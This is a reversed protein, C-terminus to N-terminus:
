TLEAKLESMEFHFVPATVEIDELLNRMSHRKKQKHCNHQKNNNYNNNNVDHKKSKNLEEGSEGEVQQEVQQQKHLTRM